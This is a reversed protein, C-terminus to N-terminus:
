VVSCYEVESRDAGSWAMGRWAVRWGGGAVRWGGRAGRGAGVRSAKGDGAAGGGRREGHWAVGSCEM